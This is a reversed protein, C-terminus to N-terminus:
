CNAISFQWEYQTKGNFITSREMDYNINTYWLSCPTRSVTRTCGQDKDVLLKVSRLPRAQQVLSACQPWSHTCWHAISIKSVKPIRCASNNKLHQHIAIHPVKSIKSCVLGHLHRLRATFNADETRASWTFRWCTRKKQTSLKYSHKIREWFAPRNERPFSISLQIQKRSEDSNEHTLNRVPSRDLCFVQHHEIPAM